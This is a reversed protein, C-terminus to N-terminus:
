PTNDEPSMFQLAQQENDPGDTGQANYIDPASNIKDLRALIEMNQNKILDFSERIQIATTLLEKIQPMNAANELIKPIDLNKMMANIVIEQMSM